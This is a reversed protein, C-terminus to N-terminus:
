VCVGARPRRQTEREPQKKGPRPFAVERTEESHNVGSAASGNRGQHEGHTGANTRLERGRGQGVHGGRTEHLEDGGQQHQAGAVNVGENVVHAEDVVEKVADSDRSQNHQANLLGAHMSGDLYSRVLEM